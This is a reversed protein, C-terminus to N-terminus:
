TRNARDPRDKPSARPGPIEDEGARAREKPPRSASLRPVCEEPIPHRGLRLTRMPPRKGLTKAGAEMARAGGSKIKIKILAVSSSQRVDEGFAWFIRRRGAGEEPDRSESGGGNPNM